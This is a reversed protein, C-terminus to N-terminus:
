PESRSNREPESGEEHGYHVTTNEHHAGSGNSRKATGGAQAAGTDWRTSADGDLVNGASSSDVSATATWGTRDLAFEGLPSMWDEQTLCGGLNTGRLTVIQGAGANNRLYKGNAKLFNNALSAHAPAISTILVIPQLLLVTVLGIALRPTRGKRTTRM